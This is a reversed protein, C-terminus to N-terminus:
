KTLIAEGKSDTVVVKNKENIYCRMGFDKMLEKNLETLTEPSENNKVAATYAKIVIEADQINIPKKEEIQEPKEEKDESIKEKISSFLTKPEEKSVFSNKPKKPKFISFVIFGGGIMLFAELLTKKNM